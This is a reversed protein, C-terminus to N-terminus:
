NNADIDLVPNRSLCDAETNNKEPFYKIKCNYQSLYHSMDGLEDDPKNRINLKELPKHDTYVTFYNGILWHQCFKISEKIALCELFIAKKNKQSENLKKSFYAVPKEKCNHQNQKLVAGIGITSTYKTLKVRFGERIAELLKKLHTIHEDFKKSFILIDDIFNVLFGTLGNKRIINGLSRQFIGPSPKLGFPLCTWQYHGEQTVVGTKHRDENFNVAYEKEDINEIQKDEFMNKSSVKFNDTRQIQINLNEDHTLEADLTTLGKTKGEGSITNYCYNPKM